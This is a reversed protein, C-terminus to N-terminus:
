YISAAFLDAMRQHGLWSPHINDTTVYTPWLASTSTGRLASDMDIVGDAGSGREVLWSNYDNRNTDFGSQNASYTRAIIPAVYVPKGAGIVARTNAITNLIDAQLQALTRGGTSLDNSGLAVVAGDDSAGSHDLRTWAPITSVSFAAATIGALSVNAVLANNSAAWLWPYNRWM